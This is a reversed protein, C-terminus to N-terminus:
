AAIDWPHEWAALPRRKRLLPYDQKQLELLIRVKEKVPLQARKRHWEHKRAFMM